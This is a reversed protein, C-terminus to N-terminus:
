HSESIIVDLRLAPGGLEPDQPRQSMNLGMTVFIKHSLIKYFKLKM